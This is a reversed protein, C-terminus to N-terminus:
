DHEEQIDETMEEPEEENDEEVGESIYVTTPKVSKQGLRYAGYAGAGITVGKAIRIFVRGTKSAKINDRMKVVGDYIKTFVSKQNKEGNEEKIIENNSEM